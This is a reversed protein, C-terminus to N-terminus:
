EIGINSKQKKPVGGFKVLGTKIDSYPVLIFIIFYSTNNKQPLLFLFNNKVNAHKNFHLLLNKSFDVHGSVWVDSRM